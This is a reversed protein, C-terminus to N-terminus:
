KSLHKSIIIKVSHILNLFILVFNFCIGPVLERLKVRNVRYFFSFFNRSDIERSVISKSEWGGRERLFFGTIVGEVDFGQIM